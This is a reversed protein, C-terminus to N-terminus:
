LDLNTATDRNIDLKYAIASQSLRGKLLKHIMKVDGKKVM